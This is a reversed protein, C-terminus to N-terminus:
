TPSPGESRPLKKNTIKLAVTTRPHELDEPKRCIRRNKDTKTSESAARQDEHAACKRHKRPETCLLHKNQFCKKHQSNAALTTETQPLMPVVFRAHSMSGHAPPDINGSTTKTIYKLRISQRQIQENGLQLVHQHLLRGSVSM